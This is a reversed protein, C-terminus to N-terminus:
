FGITIGYVMGSRGDALSANSLGIVGRYGVSAGFNRSFAFHVGGYTGSIIGYNQQYPAPYGAEGPTLPNRQDVYDLDERVQLSLWSLLALNYGIFPGVGIERDNNSNTGAEYYGGIGGFINEERVGLDLGIRTATGQVSNSVIGVSPAIFFSTEEDAHAALSLFFLVVIAARSM